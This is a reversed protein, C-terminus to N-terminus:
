GKISEVLVWTQEQIIVTATPRWKDSITELISVAWKRLEEKSDGFAQQTNATPDVGKLIARYRM